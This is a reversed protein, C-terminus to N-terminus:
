PMPAPAPLYAARHLEFERVLWMLTHMDVVMVQEGALAALDREVEKYWTPTQLISRWVAFRPGPGTFHSSIAAAAQKPDHPLDGSMRLFPMLQHLGQHPIKQAVIGEPSFRAYADLGEETLGPAFGDIVFGTIGLDWQDYFARCHREWTAVGSPLGSHKRPESLYGPNLYGAGSDGAIFVDGPAAHERAWAMGLPFRESLNPNFAWSLPTTGRAPDAWIRPLQHYLWSASAYDGVYHAVYYRPRILGRDDLLGRAVLSERSPRPQIYRGKLPYHQFFSANAMASLGIADADMYATYCSLIEAYRWETPVPEHTGGAAWSPCSWDTYKYAWPVFGAAHIAKAGALRSYCASLLAKLTEADTGPRQSRDDVPTEDDWVNLDFLVGRQAIVYDHNCLTHLAPSGAQHCRLWFADLYYGLRRPNALGTEVYRRILWRYADNKASGTSPLNTDPITGSGTFLPAGDGKLLRVVVPIADPGSTLRCYLAGDAEDLRVPLLNECGAITSALNSTAPVREDYVVLGRYSSRFRRLLESLDAAHEIAKGALWGGAETMREWWFDDPEALTRVYLRPRDRNALGQLAAVLHSEDWLRRLQAPDGRDLALVSTMDAYVLRDSNMPREQAECGNLAACALAVAIIRRVNM